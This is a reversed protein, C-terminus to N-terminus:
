KKMTQKKCSSKSSSSNRLSSPIFFIFLQRGVGPWRGNEMNKNRKTKGTDLSKNNIGKKRKSQQKAVVSARDDQEVWALIALSM